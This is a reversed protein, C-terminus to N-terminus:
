RWGSGLFRFELWLSLKSLAGLGSAAVALVSVVDLINRMEFSFSTPVHSPFRATLCTNLRLRNFLSQPPLLTPSNRSRTDVQVLNIILTATQAM